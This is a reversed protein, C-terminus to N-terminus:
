FTALAGSRFDAGLLGLRPHPNLLFFSRVFHHDLLTPPRPELQRQRDREESRVITAPLRRDCGRAPLNSLTQTNGASHQGSPFSPPRSRAARKKPTGLM